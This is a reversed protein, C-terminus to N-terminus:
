IGRSVWTSNARGSGTLVRDGEYYPRIFVVIGVFALIYLVNINVNM